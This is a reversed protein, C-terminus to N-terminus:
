AGRGTSLGTSHITIVRPGQLPTAIDIASRVVLLALRYRVSEADKFGCEEALAANSPCPQGTRALRKLVGLLVTLDESMTSEIGARSLTRQPRARKQMCYDFLAPGRKQQFFSVEGKAHLKDAAQVAPLSKLLGCGTFYVLVDGPRAIRSWENVAEATV